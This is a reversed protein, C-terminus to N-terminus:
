EKKKKRDRRRGGGGEAMGALGGIGPECFIFNVLNCLMHSHKRRLRVEQSQM